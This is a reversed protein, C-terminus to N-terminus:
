GVELLAATDAPLESVEFMELWAQWNAASMRAVVSYGQDFRAADFGVLDSVMAAKEDAPAIAERWDTLCIASICDDSEGDQSLTLWVYDAPEVLEFGELWLAWNEASMTVQICRGMDFPQADWSHCDAHFAAIEAKDICVEKHSDLNLTAFDSANALDRAIILRATNTM